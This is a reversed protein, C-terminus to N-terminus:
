KNVKKFGMVLLVVTAILFPAPIRDVFLVIVVIQGSSMVNSSLLASM